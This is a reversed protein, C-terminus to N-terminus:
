REALGEIEDMLRALIENRQKETMQAALQAIEAILARNDGAHRHRLASLMTLLGPHRQNM